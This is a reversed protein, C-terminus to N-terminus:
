HVSDFSAPTVTSGDWTGDLTLPVESTGNWLTWNATPEILQAPGIPTASDAVAMDDIYFTPFTTSLTSGFAIDTISGAATGTLTDWVNMTDGEYITCTIAGSNAVLELRYKTNISLGLSGSDDLLAAGAGRLRVEGPPSGASGAIDIRAVESGDNAVRLVSAASSGYGTIEVYVRAAYNTHSGVIASSWSVFKAQSTLAPIQIGPSRLATSSTAPSLGAAGGITTFATDGTGASSTTIPTDTPLGDGSWQALIAM